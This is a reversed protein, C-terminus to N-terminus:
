QAYPEPDGMVTLAGFITGLFNPLFTAWFVVPGSWHDLPALRFGTLVLAAICMYCCVYWKWPALKSCDLFDLVWFFMRPRKM